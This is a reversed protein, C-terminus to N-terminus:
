NAACIRWWLVSNDTGVHPAAQYLIEQPAGFQAFIELITQQRPDHTGTNLKGDSFTGAGGEGFQVNSQPLLAGETWFAAVDRSRQEVPRGREIVLPKAGARALLLACFLGAPGMGVVVPRKAFDAHGEPFRWMLREWRTIKKSRSMAKQEDDCTCRVSCIVRVDNKKRADISQRVLVLDRVPMGCERAALRLLDREPQGPRLSLNSILLM